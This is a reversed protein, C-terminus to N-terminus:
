LSIRKDWPSEGGWNICVSQRRMYSKWSDSGATRGGGTEKEGGFAAGIDAGTTGMNVKAIGCDSGAASLFLEINALSASHIGSALGQRVNNHIHIAQEITEYEMVFLIPAFTEHQACPWNPRVNVIITPEVYYGPRVIRKGGCVVQGGLEVAQKVTAEFQEVAARDVLPGVVTGEDRPDGVEIQEFSRTLLDVLPGAVSRHAIIRRTSTCRQGTTGVAGFTISRAALKLDATEDVICGNNGSCELMYRRGLTSGVLGAVRQGVKSSGTFSVLAIRKDKVLLEATENDEPLFLSFVGEFGFEKMAINCLHQLGLATVPVKPSPKWIVVNGGIAALFGNQAWVAAPFNYASIVGVLGLPLWQDYMRHKYRQSQQTFGYLMRAQGAALAAMDVVERLESTAEIISKGTDLVVLAALDGIHEEVLRGIRAVFEGRRPPPVMRWKVQAAAADSIINEYDQATAGAIKVTVTEDAPCVADFTRRGQTQSWGQPLSHAGAQVAGIEFKKLVDSTKFM